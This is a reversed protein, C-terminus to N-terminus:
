RGPVEAEAALAFIMPPELGALERAALFAEVPVARRGRPWDALTQRSIPHSKGILPGLRRSLQSGSLGTLRCARDFARAARIRQSTSGGDDITDGTNQAIRGPNQVAVPVHFQGILVRITRPRPTVPM